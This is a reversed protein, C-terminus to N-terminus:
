EENPFYNLPDRWLSAIMKSQWMDYAQRLRQVEKPNEKSIDRIERSDSDLDFLEKKKTIVSGVLKYRNERVAYALGSNVRWFLQRHPQGQKKGLLYPLLATGDYEKDDPLEVGAAAAATAFIDLSIVQKDYVKGKPLMGMWQLAFPVRIGGEYLSTKGDRLPDNCAGRNIDGGNDNLFFVLTDKELDYHRLESLVQGIGDDLAAAMGAYVRRKKEKIHRFRKMYGAPAQLPVHVASYSLYLFFPKDKHRRIFDVAKHSFVDTLYGPHSLTEKNHLLPDLIAKGCPVSRMYDHIGHLFGYFEGFGRNNPHYAESVGLHWKGIIGTAYGAKQLVDSLLIESVPLGLKPDAFDYAPNCEHGFRQQYRGTLLGARSPSCYPHSVFGNTFRVGNLAISDINPTPIDTGGTFGVDAYGLDDALIVIINPKRILRVDAIPLRSKAM